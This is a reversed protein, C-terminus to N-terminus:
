DDNGVVLQLGQSSGIPLPFALTVDYDVFQATVPLGHLSNDCPLGLGFSGDGTGGAFVLNSAFIPNVYIQVSPPAGPVSQGPDLNGLGLLLASIGNPVLGSGTIQFGANGLVPNGGATGINPTGFNTPSATGGFGVVHDTTGWVELRDTVLPTMNTNTVICERYALYVTGGCNTFGSATFRQGDDCGFTGGYNAILDSGSIRIRLRQWGDNVGTTAVIPGGLITPGTGGNNLDVLYISAQAQQVIGVWAVGTAGSRMGTCQIQSYYGAIDAPNAAGDTTGTVGIAWAEAEGTAGPAAFVANGGKVYVYTEVLFQESAGIRLYNANGGGTIDHWVGVNGGQPSPPLTIVNAGSNTIAAPDATRGPVFSYNFDGTLTTGAVDDLLNVYGPTLTQASGNAAGPTWQMICFDCGNDNSDYGDQRRQYTNPFADVTVIEGWIGTGERPHPGWSGRGTEWAVSDIVTATLDILDISENDNEFNSPTTAVTQNVNPVTALGVVWYGGAALVTGAPITYTTNPGLPDSGVLTWGSIDVPAGSRNYLEVFEKDDTSSDDYCFENIVVPATSSGGGPGQPVFAAFSALTLLM